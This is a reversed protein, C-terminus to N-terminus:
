KHGFITVGRWGPEPPNERFRALREMYLLTPKDGPLLNLVEQFTKQAKEWEMGRFARLGEEFLRIGDQQVQSAQAQLCILEYIGVATEKGKVRVLDLDRVLFTQPALRKVTFESLIISTGYVKNLGELRSALNVADGIATYDVFERSGLNGVTAEGTNIGIGIAIDAMGEIGSGHLVQLRDIM